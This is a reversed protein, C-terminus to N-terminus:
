DDDIEVGELLKEVHENWISSGDKLVEPNEMAHNYIAQIFLAFVPDEEITDLEDVPKIILSPINHENFVVEVTVEQSYVNQAFESPVVVALSGGHKFMKKTTKM